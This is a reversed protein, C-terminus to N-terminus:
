ELIGSNQLPLPLADFPRDWDGGTWTIRGAELTTIWIDVVEALNQAAPVPPEFESFRVVYVTGAPGPDGDIMAVCLATGGALAIPLWSPRYVLETQVDSDFLEEAMARCEEREQLCRDLTLPLYTSPTLRIAPRMGAQGNHWSFWTVLDQPPDLVLEGLRYRAEDEPLGPLLRREPPHGLSLWLEELRELGARLDTV